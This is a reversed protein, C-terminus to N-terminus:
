KDHALCVCTWFASSPAAPDSAGTLLPCPVTGVRDGRACRGVCATKREAPTCANSTVHTKGKYPYTRTEAGAQARQLQPAAPPQLTRAGRGMWGEAREAPRLVTVLFRM